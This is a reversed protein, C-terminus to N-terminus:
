NRRRSVSEEGIKLFYGERRKLKKERSCQCSRRQRRQQNGRPLIENGLNKERGRKQRCVSKKLSKMKDLSKLYWRVSVCVVNRDGTLVKVRFELNM